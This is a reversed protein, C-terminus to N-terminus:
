VPKWAYHNYTTKIGIQLIWGPFQLCLPLLVVNVNALPVLTQWLLGLYLHGPAPSFCMVTMIHGWTAPARGAWSCRGWASGAGPHLSVLREAMTCGSGVVSWCLTRSCIWLATWCTYNMWKESGIWAFLILSMGGIFSELFQHKYVDRMFQIGLEGLLLGHKLGM